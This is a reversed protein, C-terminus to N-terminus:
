KVVKYTKTATRIIYAGKSLNAIDEHTAKKHIIIGDLTYINVNESETLLSEVSSIGNVTCEAYLDSGDTTMAKIVATGIALITVNGTQDVPAVTENSSSWAVTKNTIDDPLVTAILTVTAGVEEEITSTNLYIETALIIKPEVTVKCTATLGNSTSVTIVATGSAMATVKGDTVSAVSSDSSTWIVTKDTANTPDITAILTFTDGETLTKEHESLEIASAGINEFLARVVIDKAPMIEYINDWGLFKYGEKQPTPIDSIAVGSAVFDKKYINNESRVLSLIRAKTTEEVISDDEEIIYTIKYANYQFEDDKDMYESISKFNKWPYFEKYLNSYGEPVYLDVNSVNSFCSETYKLKDLDKHTIKIAKLNNADFCDEQLDIINSSILFVELGSGKFSGKALTTIAKPMNVKKLNQCNGFIYSKFGYKTNSGFSTITEPLFIEELNHCEAFCATGLQTTNSPLQVHILNDCSNFAGAEIKTLTNPLIVTDVLCEQFAGNTCTVQNSSWAIIDTPKIMDNVSYSKGEYTVQEPILIKGSLDKNQRGITANGDYLIYRVGDIQVIQKTPVFPESGDDFETISRCNMWPYYEQYVQKSGLPVFLDCNSLNGFCDDTYTLNDLDKVCIKLTNISDTKLCQEDLVTLNEPITISKIGSNMFCGSALRTVKEPILITKLNICGGFSYSRYGYRTSSAIDTLTEPLTIESLKVCGALSAAGLRTLSNPLLISELNSCDQFAGSPIEYISNPLAISKINTNQFAGGECKITGGSYCTLDQCDVIATVPYKQNEFELEEPIIIEGDLSPKQRAITAKKDKLIYKINDIIVTTQDAIIIEGDEGYEKIVMFDSWPEYEQYVSMCGKPVYLTTTSIDAFANLSYKINRIDKIAMTLARLNPLYLSNDEIEIITEPIYLSDLGCDMFCGAALKSVGFPINLSKLNSCEGFVYSVFGYISNSGFNKVTEPISLETLKTCGAFSAAGLTETENPFVVKDLDKCGNFAGASIFKITNPLVISTIKCDQFAGGEVTVKNSSWATINTPDVLGIVSYSKGDFEISSPIIIDGSLDKDQRAIIAEEEEILYRIGNVNTVTQANVLCGFSMILMLSLSVRFIKNKM